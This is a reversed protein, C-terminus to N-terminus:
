KLFFIRSYIFLILFDVFQILFMTKCRIKFTEISLNLMELPIRKNICSLRNSLINNGVKYNSNNSIEFTTQRSTQIMKFNLDLWDKTPVSNNFVKYLLLCHRYFCLKSPLAREYISHLDVYSITPDHYPKCLKLASVPASMLLKKCNHNLTPIHWIESGYYLKSYFHSTLM